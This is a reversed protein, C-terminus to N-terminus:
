LSLKPKSPGEGNDVLGYCPIPGNEAKLIGYRTAASDCHKTQREVFAGSSDPGRGKTPIHEYQDKLYSSFHSVAAAQGPDLTFDEFRDLLEAAQDICTCRSAELMAKFVPMYQPDILRIAKSLENIREFDGDMDQLLGAAEPSISFLCHYFCDAPSGAGIAELSQQLEDETYPITLLSRNAEDIKGADGDYRALELIYVYDPKEGPEPAQISTQEPWEPRWAYGHRTYVGKEAKRRQAGIAGRDLLKKVSEPLAALEEDLMNDRFLYKGYQKDSYIDPILRCRHLEHTAKYLERLDMMERGSARLSLYADYRDTQEDTMELFRLAFQNLEDVNVHALRLLHENLGYLGSFVRINMIEDTEDYGARTLEDHLTDHPLPLIFDRTSGAPLTDTLTFYITNM